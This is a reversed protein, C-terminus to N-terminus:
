HNSVSLWVRDFAEAVLADRLKMHAETKTQRSM